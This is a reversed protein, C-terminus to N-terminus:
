AVRDAFGRQFVRDVPSKPGAFGAAQQVLLRAGVLTGEDGGEMGQWRGSQQKRDREIALRRGRFPAVFEGDIAAEEGGLKQNERDRGRRDQLQQPRAVGRCQPQCAPFPLQQQGLRDRVHAGDGEVDRGSRNPRRRLDGGNEAPRIGDLFNWQLREKRGHVFRVPLQEVLRDRAPPPGYRWSNRMMRGSPLTRMM